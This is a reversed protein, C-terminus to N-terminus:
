PLGTPGPPFNRNRKACYNWGIALAVLLVILETIM